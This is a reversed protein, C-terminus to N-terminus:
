CYLEDGFPDSEEMSDIIANELIYHVARNADHAHQHRKFALHVLCAYLGDIISGMMRAPLYKTLSRIMVITDNVVIVASQYQQRLLLSYIGRMCCDLITADLYTIKSSVAMKSPSTPPVQNSLQSSKCPRLALCRDIKAPLRITWALFIIM